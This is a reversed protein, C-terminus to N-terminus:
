INNEGKKVNPKLLNKVMNIIPLFEKNIIIITVLLVAVSLLIDFILKEFFMSVISVIVGFVCLMAMKWEPKSSAYYHLGVSIRYTKSIILSALSAIAIGTLGMKPILLFCLSFSIAAQILPSIIFHYTKKKINIGVSYIITLIHFLAGFLVSPVITSIQHYEAGLILVLWRRLLICASLGLMSIVTLGIGFTHLMPKFLKENDCHKYVIFLEKFRHKM